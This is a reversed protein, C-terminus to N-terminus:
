SKLWIRLAERVHRSTTTLTRKRVGIPKSGGKRLKKSMRQKGDYNCKHIDCKNPLIPELEDLKPVVQVGDSKIGENMMYLFALTLYEHNLSHIKTCADRHNTMKSYISLCTSAIRDALADELPTQAICYIVNRANNYFRDKQNVGNGSSTARGKREPSPLADHCRRTM